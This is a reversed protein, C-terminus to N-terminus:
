LAHMENMRRQEAKQTLPRAKFTDFSYIALMGAYIIM